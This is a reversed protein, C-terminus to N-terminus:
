SAVAGDPPAHATHPWLGLPTLIKESVDPQDICAIIRMAGGCRPCLLPDAEYVKKDVRGLARQVGCLASAPADRGSRRVSRTPSAGTGQPTEGPQRQQVLWLLPRSLTTIRTVARPPTPHDYIVRWTAGDASRQLGARWASTAAILQGRHTAMAHIHLAEGEPLSRWQWDRGNTVVYEGHRASFRSDEFPWFLLGGLVVPEGADQSFLHREYRTKGSVPDYSYIDASNHDVFKVSNVFWLRGGYSLLGSAGSWPGPKALPVLTQAADSVGSFLVLVALPILKLGVGAGIKVWVRRVFM